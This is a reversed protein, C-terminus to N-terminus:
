TPSKEIIYMELRCMTEPKFSMSIDLGRIRLLTTIVVIGDITSFVHAKNM